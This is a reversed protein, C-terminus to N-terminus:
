DIEDDIDVMKETLEEITINEIAFTQLPHEIGSTQLHLSRIAELILIMSPYYSDMDKEFDCGARGLENIVNQWLIDAVESAYSEKYQRLHEQVEEMSQPPADIKIKPFEIINSENAMRKM